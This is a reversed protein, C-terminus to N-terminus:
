GDLAELYYSGRRKCNIVKYPREWNPGLKGHTLDKTALSAWKLVLDGISFQRPKVLTNHNKTMLNKYHAVRQKVDMRVENILNLSLRLQKENEEDKYHVVKYSTLGVEATIVADIGYTLKFPTEGIPTWVTTRYAWLVSPLEDPWIRKAGELQTKIIKM